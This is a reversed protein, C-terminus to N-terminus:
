ASVWMTCIHVCLCHVFIYLYMPFFYLLDRGRRKATSWLYSSDTPSLYRSTYKMYLYKSSSCLSYSTHLMRFPFFLLQLISDGQPTDNETITKPKTKEQLAGRPILWFYSIGPSLLKWWCDGKANMFLDFFLKLRGERERRVNCGPHNQGAPWPLLNLANESVLPCPHVDKVPEKGIHSFCM